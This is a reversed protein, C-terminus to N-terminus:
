QRAARATTNKGRQLAPPKRAPGQNLLRKVARM